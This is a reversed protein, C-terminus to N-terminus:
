TGRTDKMADIGSRMLNMLVPQLQVRDAAIM